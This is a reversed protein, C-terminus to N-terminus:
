KYIVFVPGILEPWRERTEFQRFDKSYPFKFANIISLLSTNISNNTFKV